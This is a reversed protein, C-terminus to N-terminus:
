SSNSVSSSRMGEGGRESGHAHLVALRSWDEPLAPVPQRVDHLTVLSDLSVLSCLQPRDSHECLPKNTNLVVYFWRLAPSM